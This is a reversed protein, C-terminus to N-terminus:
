AGMIIIIDQSKCHEYAVELDDYLEDIDEVTSTSTPAYVQILTLNLTKCQLKVLLIRSSIAYQAMHSKSMEKNLLMVVGHKHQKIDGSYILMHADSLLKGSKLWRVEALGLIDLNMRNAEKKINELEGPQYMTRVNWTAIRIKLRTKCVTVPQRDFTDQQM